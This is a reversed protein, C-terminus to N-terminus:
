WPSGFMAHYYIGSMFVFGMIIILRQAVANEMLNLGKLLAVSLLVYFGSCGLVMLVWFIKDVFSNTLEPNIGSGPLFSQILFVIMFIAAAASLIGGIIRISKNM